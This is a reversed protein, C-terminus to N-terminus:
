GQIKRTCRTAMKRPRFVRSRYLKKHLPLNCVPRRCRRDIQEDAKGFVCCCIQLSVNGPVVVGDIIAGEKGTRRPLALPVPPYLRLAEELCAHLYPLKSTTVLTMEEAATFAERVEKQVKLYANPNTLLFYTVGSLLTATTESGAIILLGSTNKIETNSM